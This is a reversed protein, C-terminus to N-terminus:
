PKSLGPFLAPGQVPGVPAPAPPQPKPVVHGRVERSLRAKKPDLNIWGEWSTFDTMGQVDQYHISAPRKRGWFYVRGEGRVYKAEDAKGWMRTGQRVYVNSSALVVEETERATFKRASLVVPMTDVATEWRTLVPKEWLETVRTVPNYRGRRGTAVLKEGTERIWTATIHGTAEVIQTARTQIMQDAKLTYPAQNLVVHGRFITRAGNDQLELEDSRITTNAPMDAQALGAMWLLGFAFVSLGRRRM